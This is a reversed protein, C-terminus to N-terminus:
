FRELGHHAIHTRPFDAVLDLLTKKATRIDDRTLQNPVAPFSETLDM